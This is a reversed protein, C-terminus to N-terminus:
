GQLSVITKGFGGDEPLAYKFSKVAKQELLYRRIGEGLIGEGMGHIISFEKLGTLVSLDLQEEVSKVAEEMRYGRLDLTHKPTGHDHTYSVSVKPEAKRGTEEIKIDGPHVSIKVTGAAVLWSEDKNKRILTGRRKATTIYVEMGPELSDADKLRLPPEPQEPPLTGALSNANKEMEHIFRKVGRTTEPTLPTERIERVLNELGKRAESLFSTVEKLGERKLLNESESLKTQLERTKTLEDILEAEKSVAASLSSELESRKSLLDKIIVSLDQEKKGLYERAKEIINGPIGSVSAIDIARSEGPIGNLLRYTPRLTNMDFELSANGVGERTFGYNKLLGQHTTVLTLAGIHMCEDLVAMALASGETADTGSGLEDLLILSYEDCKELIGSIRSIHASFTSLSHTISQEDGIDIFINKFWPLSSAGSAPIEMGFQNMLAILGLTKLVVTKGGANPGSIILTKVNEEIRLDVPVVKKGLLPHRAGLLRIGSDRAVAKACNHHIAFRARAYITDLYCTKSVMERLDEYNGRAGETASRLIHFVEQRYRNELDVLLNNKEVIDLPEIFLTKGTSSVEHVIGRVKGRYDSKLPLVIRGEKQTPVDSQWVDRLDNTRLYSEALSAISENVKKIRGKIAALSPLGDNITGDQNIIRKLERLLGAPAVIRSAYGKLEGVGELSSASTTIYAVLKIVSEIFRSLDWLEFLELVTGEKALKAVVVRLGPFVLSPFSPNTELIKRYQAALDTIAEGERREVCIKQTLIEDPGESSVCYGCLEERIANFELLTLSRADIDNM